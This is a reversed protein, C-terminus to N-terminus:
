YANGATGNNSGMIGIDISTPDVPLPGIGLPRTSGVLYVFRTQHHRGDGPIKYDVCGFAIIAPGQGDAALDAYEKRSIIPSHGQPDTTQGPFVSGGGQKDWPRSLIEDCEAFRLKNINAPFAEVKAKVTITTFFSPLHGVNSLTWTLPIVFNDEEIIMRGKIQAAQYVWPRQEDRMEDLTRSTINWQAIGVGALVFTLGAVWVNASATRRAARDSPSEKAKGVCCEQFYRKIDQPTWVIWDPDTNCEQETDSKGSGEDNM